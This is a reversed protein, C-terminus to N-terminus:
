QSKQRFGNGTRGSFDNVKFAGHIQGANVSFSNRFRRATNQHVTNKTVSFSQSKRFYRTNDSTDFGPVSEQTTLRKVSCEATARRVIYIRTSKRKRLRFSYYCKYIQREHILLHRAIDFMEARRLICSLFQDRADSLKRVRRNTPVDRHRSRMVIYRYVAAAAPPATPRQRKKAGHIEGKNNFDKIEMEPPLFLRVVDRKIDKPMSLKRLRPKM